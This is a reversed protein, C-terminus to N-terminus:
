VTVQGAPGPLDSSSAAISRGIVKADNTNTGVIVDYLAVTQGNSDLAAVTTHGQKLGFLFLSRASAPRVEVVKPDAVFINAATRALKVIRGTGAEISLGPLNRAAAPSAASLCALALVAITWECRM